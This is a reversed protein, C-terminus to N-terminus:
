VAKRGSEQRAYNHFAAPLYSCCEAYNGAPLYSYFVYFTLEEGTVGAGQKATIAQLTDEAGDFDCFPDSLTWPPM